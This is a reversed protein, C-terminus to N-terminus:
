MSKCKLCVEAHLVYKQMYCMSCCTVCVEKKMSCMSREAHFVYKKRCSVCVEKQLFCM